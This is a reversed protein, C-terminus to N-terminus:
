RPFHSAILWGEVIKALGVGDAGDDRSNQCIRWLAAGVAELPIDHPFNGSHGMEAVSALVDSSPERSIMVIGDDDSLDGALVLNLFPNREVM